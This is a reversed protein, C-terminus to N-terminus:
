IRGPLRAIDRRIWGIYMTEINTRKIFRELEGFLKRGDTGEINHPPFLKTDPHYTDGAKHLDIAFVVYDGNEIFQKTIRVLEPEIQQGPKGCTLAGHDAIFDVTYDINILAKKV